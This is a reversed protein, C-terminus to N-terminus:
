KKAARFWPPQICGDAIPANRYTQPTILVSYLLRLGCQRSGWPLTFHPTIHSCNRQRRPQSICRIRSSHWLPHPSVAAATCCSSATTLGIPASLTTGAIRLLSCPSPGVSRPPACAGLVARLLAYVSPPLNSLFSQTDVCTLQLFSQKDAYTLQLFTRALLWRERVVVSAVAWRSPVM